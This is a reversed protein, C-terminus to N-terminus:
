SLKQTEILNTHFKFYNEFKVMNDSYPQYESPAPHLTPSVFCYIDDKTM